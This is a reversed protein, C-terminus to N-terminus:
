RAADDELRLRLHEIDIRDQQRDASEKMAILTPLSVFRVEVTGYLPKILARAYEDDFPFPEYVFIDIPTERHQESWLQLVRMGKERVWEERLAQNAVQESTVPVVPKYGLNALAAFARALNDPILQIVVDIDNTFRLYGHANVALGGVILYRVNAENLARVISAVSAVKM